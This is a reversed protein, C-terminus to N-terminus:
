NVDSDSWDEYDDDDSGQVQQVPPLLERAPDGAENDKVIEDAKNNTDFEDGYVVWGAQDPFFEDRYPYCKGCLWLDSVSDM